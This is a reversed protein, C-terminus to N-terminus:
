SSRHAATYSAQLARSAQTDLAELACPVGTALGPHLLFLGVLAQRLRPDHHAALSAILLTDPVPAGCTDSPALWDIGRERLAAVLRDRDMVIDIM